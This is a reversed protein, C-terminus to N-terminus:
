ILFRGDEQFPRGDVEIRGGQRLDCVLDTHVASRNTGGCEPYAAGLAMHVTGGIKEDLLVDRTGRTIGYNAGIGLEGLRRAGDDTELLTLLYEEGRTASADVVKGSEFRLRVGAVERGGIMAPLDFSAEGEVSDEVPATFFEGDPMNRKGDAPIFRREAIGLRVDTGPARVRIEEHGEIWGALRRCEESVREWAELPDHEDALCAHYYFDEFEATSMEADAAYADTPFLTYVWRHKGEATRRMVAESLHHTATRRKTQREPAVGSLERTNTEAGIAIRCDAENAAWEALPSVWELQAQSAHAFYIPLQGRVSVTLVPLGGAKLVREYVAAVLPEGAVSGEILCTEGQRLGVSYEVLIRALSDVRPDRV